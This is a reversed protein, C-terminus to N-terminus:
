NASAKKIKPRGRKKKAKEEKPLLELTKLLEINSPNMKVLIWDEKEDLRIKKGSCLINMLRKYTYKNLLQKSDFYNILRFTLLSSLFDIFETGIVSYDDHVRTEDFELASKYYRMVIEIEWRCDYAKYILSPDLDLDSEFVVTGFEAEKKLYEGHDYSGAAKARSLYDSEEKSAKRIDKFSYLWKDKGKVKAKKYLTAERDSLVGDYEYMHYTKILKANRNLPNLYHLNKNEEFCHAANNYPFGKDGVIIGSRIHNDSIFREYATKDLMNGPFCQSCVPEMKELDFAYIVSIDRTGKTRAKRSFNSLSNIKSEDSKLTGDVLLHHDMNIRSTRNQMFLFIRAVAKGLDNIFKSVTNKSLAVSSYLESLFSEDYKEKLEYDKIGHYSVRLLAICYIKLADSVAYVKFLEDLIDKFLRDCLIIQAWDKLQVQEDSVLEYSIPVYQGDIIHGITPGNVPINRGNVRKCGIRQKVGYKDKNKGYAIVVTNKPREVKLIESPIPM